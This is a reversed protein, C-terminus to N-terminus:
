GADQPLVAGDSRVQGPVLALHLAPKQGLRLNVADYRHEGFVLGNELRADDVERRAGLIISCCMLVGLGLPGRGVQGVLVIISRFFERMSQLSAQLPHWRLEVHLAEDRKAHDRPDESMHGDVKSLPLRSLQSGEM